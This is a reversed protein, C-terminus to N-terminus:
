VGGFKGGADHGDEVIERAHGVYKGEIEVAFDVALLERHHLKGGGGARNAGGGRGAGVEGGPPWSREPVQGEMPLGEWVFLGRNVM